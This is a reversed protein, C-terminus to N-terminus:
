EFLQDVTILNKDMFIKLIQAKKIADDDIKNEELSNDRFSDIVLVLDEIRIKGKKKYDIGKFLIISSIEDLLLKQSFSTYFDNVTVETELTLNFKYILELTSLNFKKEIIDVVKYYIFSPSLIRKDIIKEFFSFLKFLSVLLFNESIGLSSLSTYKLLYIKDGQQIDPYIKDLIERFTLFSFKGGTINEIYECFRSLSYESNMKLLIERLKEKIEEKSFSVSSNTKRSKSM